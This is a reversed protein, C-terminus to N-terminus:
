NTVQYDFDGNVLASAWNPYGDPWNKTAFDGSIGSGTTVLTWQQNDDLTEVGTLDLTGGLTATGTVSLGDSIGGNAMRMNLQGSSGQTFNGYILLTQIAGGYDILGNNTVNGVITNGEDLFNLEGGSNIVLGTRSVDLDALISNVTDWGHM